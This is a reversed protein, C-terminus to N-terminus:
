VGGGIVAEFGVVSFERNTTTNPPSYPSISNCGKNLSKQFSHFSHTTDSNPSRTISGNSVANIPLAVSFHRKIKIVLHPMMLTTPREMPPQNTTTAGVFRTTNDKWPCVVFTVNITYCFSASPAKHQQRKKTNFNSKPTQNWTDTSIVGPLDM